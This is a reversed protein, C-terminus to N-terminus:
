ATNGETAFLGDADHHAFPQLVPPQYVPRNVM